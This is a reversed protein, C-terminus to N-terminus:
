ETPYPNLMAMLQPTTQLCPKSRANDTASSYALRQLESPVGLKPVEMHQLHPGLVFLCVFLFITHTRFVIASPEDSGM